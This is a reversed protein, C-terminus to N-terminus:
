FMFSCSSVLVYGWCCVFANIQHVHFATQYFSMGSILCIWLVTLTTGCLLYFCYYSDLELIFEGPEEIAKHTETREGM